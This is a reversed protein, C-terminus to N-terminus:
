KANAPPCRELGASAAARFGAVSTSAASTSAPAAHEALIVPPSGAAHRAVLLYQIPMTSLPRAPSFRLFPTRGIPHPPLACARSASGGRGGRERTERRERNKKYM